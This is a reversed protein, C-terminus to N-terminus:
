ASIAPAMKPPSTAGSKASCLLLENPGVWGTPTAFMELKAAMDAWAKAQGAIDLTAMMEMIPSGSSRVFDVYHQASPLRFPASVLQVDIDVFGADHLLQAMLGPQGLSLLSGPAFPSRPQAGVAKLATAMMLTLCPNSQPTSFVVAAFRGGAKLAQRAELLVKLPETCLMLGLRCVVADFDSGALGLAQADAVQTQIQTFGAAAANVRALALIRPSIDTALVYGKGGVRRAIDLTQNGAGAAVDLVRSGPQIHAADLMANTIGSLWDQIVAANSNWGEAAKDWVHAPASALTSAGPTKTADMMM